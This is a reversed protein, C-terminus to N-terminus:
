LMASPIVLPKSPTNWSAESFSMWVVGGQCGLLAWKCMQVKKKKKRRNRSCAKQSIGNDLVPCTKKEFICEANGM